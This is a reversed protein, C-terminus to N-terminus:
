GEIYCMRPFSISQMDQQVPSRSDGYTDSAQTAIATVISM